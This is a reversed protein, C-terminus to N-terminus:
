ASRRQPTRLAETHTFALRAVFLELLVRDDLGSMGKLDGDLEALWRAIRVLRDRGLLRALKDAEKQQWPAGTRSGYAARFAPTYRTKMWAAVRLPAWQGPGLLRNLAEVAKTTDGRDIADMLENPTASGPSVALIDDATVPREACISALARLTEDARHIDAGLQAVLTRVLDDALEVGHDVAAAKVAATRDRLSKAVRVEVVTLHPGHLKTLKAPLKDAVVAAVVRVGPDIRNPHEVLEVLAPQASKGDRVHITRTLFLLSPTTAAGVLSAPEVHEITSGEVTFTDAQKTALVADPSWVIIVRTADTVTGSRSTAM